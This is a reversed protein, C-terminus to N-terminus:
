ADGAKKRRLFPRRGFPYAALAPSVRPKGDDELPADDEPAADDTADAAAKTSRRAAMAEELEIVDPPLISRLKTFNEKSNLIYAVTGGHLGLVRSPQHYQKRFTASVYRVLSLDIYCLGDESEFATLVIAPPTDAPAAPVPAAPGALTTVTPAPLPRSALHEVVSNLRTMGALLSNILRTTRNIKKRTRKKTPTPRHPATPSTM